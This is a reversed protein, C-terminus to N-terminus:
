WDIKILSVGQRPLELSMSIKGDTVKVWAPSVYTQLEGSRELKKVQEPTPQQPSGMEKWVTYANSHNEDIRYHTVLVQPSRLGKVDLTICAPPVDTIDDDHYNWLMIASEQEKRSALVGIDAQGRVSNKCISDTSVMGSSHADVLDGGMLGYMRYANLVPKAVGNTYLDRFGAFWPQGEFEFSWTVAGELNVGYKQALPYLRAFSAAITSSFLTGNRYANQPSYDDSCAACGDPDFEGIIIPLHKLEPFSAVTAFGREVDRLQTGVNMRVRDDIIRPGGKAHFGIYHLPSGTAGTAYNTGRICHELFGILYERGRKGGPGTTHPGGVRADPLAKLLGDVAYDYLKCYEEFSGRLYGDPENWVEWFWSSAEREGYREKCHLAWQYVLERWKDYDKPPYAWGTYIEDYRAGPKWSHQYPTPHTSLAEPMFGIQVLPRMGREIYTDFISDVIHWYYVPNGQADETYMNSSGWKLAPTGDGSTMLNHTRVNVPVYSFRSMETLLKKGNEMYTYNPEDYGFWAWVPKMEGTRQNLDVTVLTTQAQVIGSAFLISLATLIFPLSTKKRNM